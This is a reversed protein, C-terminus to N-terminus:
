NKYILKITGFNWKLYNKEIIIKRKLDKKQILAEALTLITKLEM